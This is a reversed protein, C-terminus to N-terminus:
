NETTTSAAGEDHGEIGQGLLRESNKSVDKGIGDVTDIGARGDVVDNGIEGFVEDDSSGGILTDNGAGGHLTVSGSFQTADFRNNGAGGALSATEISGLADTGAGTLKSNRLVFNANAVERVLDFGVGGDLSDNGANGRLMDNGDEGMLTDNGSGGTLSDNGTGGSVKTPVSVATLDVTDDGGGANVVISRVSSATFTATVGSVALKTGTKTVVINDDQNSGTITLVGTQLIATAAPVQRIELVEAAVCQQNQQSRRKFTSARRNSRTLWNTLMSSILKANM